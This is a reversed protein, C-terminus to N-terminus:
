EQATSWAHLQAATSADVDSDPVTTVVCSTICSGSFPRFQVSNSVMVVPAALM